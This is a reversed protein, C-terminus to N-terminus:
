QRSAVSYAERLRQMARELNGRANQLQEANASKYTEMMNAAEARRQQLEASKQDIERRRGEMEAIRQDTDTLEAQMRKLFEDRNEQNAQIAEQTTNIAQRTQEQAERIERQAQVQPSSKCAVLGVVFLASMLVMSKRM